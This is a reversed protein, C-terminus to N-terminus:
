VKHHSADNVFYFPHTSIFTILQNYCNTYYCAMTARLLAELALEGKSAPVKAVEDELIVGVFCFM